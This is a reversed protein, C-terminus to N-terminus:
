ASWGFLSAVTLQYAMLSVTEDDNTSYDMAGGRSGIVSVGNAIVPAAAFVLVMTNAVQRVIDDTQEPDRNVRSQGRVYILQTVTEGLLVGPSEAVADEQAFVFGGGYISISGLEGYLAYQVRIQDDWDPHAAALNALLGGGGPLASAKLRNIVASKATFGNTAPM